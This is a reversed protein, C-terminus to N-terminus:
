ITLDNEQQLKDGNRLLSSLVIISLGVFLLIFDFDLRPNM